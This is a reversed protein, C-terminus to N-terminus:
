PNTFSEYFKVGKGWLMLLDYNGMNECDPNLM